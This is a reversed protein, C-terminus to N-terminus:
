FAAKSLYPYYLWCARDIQHGSVGRPKVGGSGGLHSSASSSVHSAELPNSRAGHSPAAKSPQSWPSVALVGQLEARAVSSLLQEHRADDRGENEDGNGFINAHKCELFVRGKKQARAWNKAPPCGRQLCAFM